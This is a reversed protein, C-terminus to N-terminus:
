GIGGGNNTPKVKGMEVLQEANLDEDIGNRKTKSKEPKGKARAERLADSAVDIEKALRLIHKYDPKPKRM